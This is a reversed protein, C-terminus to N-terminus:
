TPKSVAELTVTENRGTDHDGEVRFSRVKYDMILALRKMEKLRIATIPGNEIGPMIMSDGPGIVMRPPSYPHNDAFNSAFLYFIDIESAFWDDIEPGCDCDEELGSPDALRTVNGRVYRTLNEDGADFGIPDQSM